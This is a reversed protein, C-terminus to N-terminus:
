RRCPSCETLWLSLCLGRGRQFGPCIVQTSTVNITSTIEAVRLNTLFQLFFALFSAFRTDVCTYIWLRSYMITQFELSQLFTFALLNWRWPKSVTSVTTCRSTCFEDTCITADAVTTCMELTLARGGSGRVICGRREWWEM